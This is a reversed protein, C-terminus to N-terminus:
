KSLTSGILIGNAWYAGTAGAPLLDYTAAQDYPIREIFTVAGGDLRDGGQLDGLERGDATPHGPSAWLERGDSLQLHVVRHTSPVAVRAVELIPAAVRRGAADVTWVAMGARLESVAAPGAPTDIRTGAALCIPCAAISATKQHVTIGGASDIFGQVIFGEQQNDSIQLQFEYGDGSLNFLIAGLKKHERYILLKQEDTFNTAGSLNHHALIANFEEINAQLEPFHQRALDAEDARAIPYYDPDCFFLNPFQALVQYKLETPSLGAPLSPIPTLTPPPSTPSPTVNSPLTSITEPVVTGAVVGTAESAPVPASAPGSGCAALFVVLIVTALYNTKM